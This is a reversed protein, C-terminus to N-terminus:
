IENIKQLKEKRLQKITKFRGNYIFNEDLFWKKSHKTHPMYSWEDFIHYEYCIYLYDSKKYYFPESWDKIKELGLGLEVMYKLDDKHVEWFMNIKDDNM